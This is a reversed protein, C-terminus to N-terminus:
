KTFHFPISGETDQESEQSERDDDGDYDSQADEEGNCSEAYETPGCISMACDPNVPCHDDNTHWSLEYNENKGDYNSRMEEDDDYLNYPTHNTGLPGIELQLVTGLTIAPPPRDLRPGNRTPFNPPM